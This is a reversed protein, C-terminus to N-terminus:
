QYVGSSIVQFICYLSHNRHHHHSTRSSSTSLICYESDSTDYSDNFLKRIVHRVKLYALMECEESCNHACALKKPPLQDSDTYVEIVEIPFKIDIPNFYRISLLADNLVSNDLQIFKNTYYSHSSSSLWYGNAARTSLTNLNQLLNDIILKRQISPDVEDDDHCIEAYIFDKVFAKKHLLFIQFERNEHAIRKAHVFYSQLTKDDLELM